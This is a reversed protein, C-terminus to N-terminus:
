CGESSSVWRGAMSDSWESDNTEPAKEGVYTGGMGYHEIPTDFTLGHEDALKECEKILIKSTDLKETLLKNAEEKTM